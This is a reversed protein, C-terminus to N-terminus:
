DPIQANARLVEGALYLSGCILLTVAEGRAALQQVAAVIDEATGTEAISLGDRAFTALDAPAHHEHGPIPLAHFSAIRDAFPRLFNGADKNSLMGCIVHLPASNALAKAIAAGADPNHGGDLWVESGAPLLGTLPGPALKQMRAPWRTWEMAAALASDPLKVATQHRLMAIALAANDAQHAGPMRPLPLSLRGMADRYHLQGDYIAADWRDGRDLLTAGARMVQGAVATLM